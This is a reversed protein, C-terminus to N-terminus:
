DIKQNALQNCSLFISRRLSIRDIKLDGCIALYVNMTSKPSHRNYEVYLKMDKRGGPPQLPENAEPIIWSLTKNIGQLCSWILANIQGNQDINSQDIKLQRGATQVVSSLSELDFLDFYSNQCLLTSNLCPFTGSLFNWIHLVLTLNVKNLM